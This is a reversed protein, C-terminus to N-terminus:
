AREAQHLATWLREELASEDPELPSCYEITAIWGLVIELERASLAVNVRRADSEVLAV